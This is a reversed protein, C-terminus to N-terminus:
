KQLGQQLTFFEAKSIAYFQVNQGVKITANFQGHSSEYM